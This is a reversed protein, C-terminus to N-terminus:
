AVMQSYQIIYTIMTVFIKNNRQLHYTSVKLSVIISLFYNFIARLLFRHLFNVSNLQSTFYSAPTHGLTPCHKTQYERIYCGCCDWVCFVDVCRACGEALREKLRLVVSCQVVVVYIMYTPQNCQQKSQFLIAVTSQYTHITQLEAKAFNLLRGASLPNLFGRM